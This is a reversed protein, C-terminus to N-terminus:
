SIEPGSRHRGLTWSVGAERMIGGVPKGVNNDLVSRWPVLTFDRSREILAYPGSALDIRRALRGELSTGAQAPVFEKGLEDTLKAALRLLERRQLVAIMDPRCHLKDGGITGLEEAILWQQRLAQAKRAEAGFGADRLPVPEQASLERDLWTAADMGVLQGLPLHSLTRVTVPRDRLRAEEYAAVRGLHDDTIRWRGDPERDAARALKRMAELRRVHADAFAESAGPDHRLHADVSYYGNNAAAVEVITRDVARVGHQAPKVEVIAGETQGKEPLLKGLDVYHSRGDVAEVIMYYRERHEDALGCCAVRGVVPRSQRQERHHIVYDVAAPADARGAYSRQMTRIIDGREGMRRLADEAGSAINWHRAGLRSALGLRELKRLRGTRIAHDFAGRADSSVLIGERAERLLTRDISTLREQEVDARLRRAIDDDSRPGLDLDILEAARERIGHAIYDRAIVLDAGREDKGRLVIHTHPHGTNFHDVAVWDLRTGLDEEMRAMLRRTLPKLDDYDAGDEASVIFRFQHRDGAAKDLWGARDVRDEDACYLTGRGGDSRTGDREVYRLHAKAGDLGKGRLAVIRAKVIVRRARFAAYRDRGALTQGTGAGRGIRSRTFRSSRRGTFAGGRALNAAAMIAHLIKRPRARKGKARMRGLRPEFDDDAM